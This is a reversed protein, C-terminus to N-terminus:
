EGGYAKMDQVAVGKCIYHFNQLPPKKTSLTSPVHLNYADLASNSVPHVNGVRQRRTEIIKILGDLINQADSDSVSINCSIHRSITHSQRCEESNRQWQIKISLGHPM